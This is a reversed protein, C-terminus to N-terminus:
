HRTPQILEPYKAVIGDGSSTGRVRRAFWPVLFDRTWQRDERRNEAKTLVPAPGLDQPVLEHDVGLADLVRVAMNQHGAPSMHLRDWDWMRLDQYERFRWFDVVTVAHRDAVERVLENYVALRGRLKGFFASWGTDYATFMVVRAGSRTLQAIATDYRDVVADVDFKPRMIDNGGAYISVLDPRLALAPALQEDLIPGLLRGRIALNAYRFEPNGVALQEAVRDAWGRLGNPYREDTDGVGETFSDGLAVYRKPLDTM